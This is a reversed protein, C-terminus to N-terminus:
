YCYLYFHINLFLYVICFDSVRSGRIVNSVVQIMAVDKPTFGPDVFAEDKPAKDEVTSMQKNKWKINM